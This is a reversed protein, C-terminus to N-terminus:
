EVDVFNGTNRNNKRFKPWPAYALGNSSGQLAYLYKGSGVYITGDSGIVPSSDVWDGKWKASLPVAKVINSYGSEGVKNYAKVRYYYKTNPALDTDTYETVNTEVTKIESWDTSDTKREIKFGTENDSDDKWTVKIETSSKVQSKLNSLANSLIINPVCLFLLVLLFVVLGLYEYKRM